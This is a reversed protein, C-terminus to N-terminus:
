KSVRKIHCTIVQLNSYTQKWHEQLDIYLRLPMTNTSWLHTGSTSRIGLSSYKVLFSMLRNLIQPVWKVDRTVTYEWNVSTRIFNFCQKIILHCFCIFIRMNGLEKWKVFLDESTGRWRGTKSETLGQWHMTPFRLFDMHRTYKTSNWESSSLCLLQFGCNHWIHLM